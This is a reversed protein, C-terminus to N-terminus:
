ASKVVDAGSAFSLYDVRAAGNDTKGEGEPEKLVHSIEDITAGTTYIDDVILINRGRIDAARHKRVAFAGRINERRQDPGLSRMMHTERVRMLVSDDAKMGTCRAFSDAIVAAQNYGRRNKKSPHVPVPLVLDYMGALKDVSFEALMRDALIEGLTVGIDPRGDYKLAFVMAREHTGYETCTYGRDFQHPHEKCNFCIRGPNHDSLRRGCKACTRSGIWKMGDVCENCLRYTRTSDIIKGCCICYLDPPYVLDLAASGLKKLLEM